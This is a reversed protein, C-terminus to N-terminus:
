WGRAKVRGAEEAHAVIAICEVYEGRAFAAEADAYHKTTKTRTPHVVNDLAARAEARKAATFGDILDVLDASDVKVPLDPRGLEKVRHEAEARWYILTPTDISM